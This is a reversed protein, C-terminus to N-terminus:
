PTGYQEAFERCIIDRDIGDMTYKKKGLSVAPNAPDALDINIEFRFETEDDFKIVLSSQSKVDGEIYLKRGKKSLAATIDSRAGDLKMLVFDDIKEDLAKKQKRKKNREENLRDITASLIEQWTSM